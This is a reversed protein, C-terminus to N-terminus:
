TTKRWYVAHPDIDIIKDTIHHSERFEDVAQKCGKWSYYDDVIIFGGASVKQYLNNLTDITSQYLDGDMRLVAITEIPANPLTDCFWGKLFRVKNDLLGFKRLNDAVTEQSVTILTRDSFDSASDIALDKEGAKADGRLVM